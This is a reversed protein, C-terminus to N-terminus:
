FTFEITLTAFCNTGDQTGTVAVKLVDDAGDTVNAATPTAEDQTGVTSGGAITVVGNTIASTNISCTLTADKATATTAGYVVTKIKTITIIEDPLNMYFVAGTVLDGIDMSLYGKRPLAVSPAASLDVDVLALTSSIVEVVKMWTVQVADGGDSDSRLTGLVEAGAATVRVYPHTNITLLDETVVYVYGSKVYGITKGEPDETPDDVERLIGIGRATLVTLDASSAPSKVGKAGSGSAYALVRGALDARTLGSTTVVGTGHFHPANPYAVQGNRATTPENSISTQAM